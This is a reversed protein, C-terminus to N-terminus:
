EDKEIASKKEVADVLADAMEEMSRAEAMRPTFLESPIFVRDPRFLQSAPPLSELSQELPLAPALRAFTVLETREIRVVKVHRTTAAMPTDALEAAKRMATAEDEYEARVNWISDDPNAGDSWVPVFELWVEYRVTM